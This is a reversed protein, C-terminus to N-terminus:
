PAGSDIFKPFFYRIIKEIGGHREIYSKWGDVTSMDRLKEIRKEISEDIEVIERIAILFPLYDDPRIPGIDSAVTRESSWADLRRFLEIDEPTSDPGYADVYGKPNAAISKLHAKVAQLWEDEAKFRSAMAGLEAKLADSVRAARVIM